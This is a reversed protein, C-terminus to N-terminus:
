RGPASSFVGRRRLGVVVLGVCLAGAAWTSAEPVAAVVLDISTGDDSFSFTFGSGNNVTWGTTVIGGAVGTIVNDYTGAQVGGLTFTQNAQFGNFGSPLALTSHTNGAGLTLGIVSGANLVPASALTLAGTAAGAGGQLVAGNNVTVVGGVTGTGGLITGSNSVAVASAGTSGSVLLAGASVTTAGTYTSTGGLTWTGANIKSLGGGGTAVGGTITGTGSGTLTLTFGSGGVASASTLNLVTGNNAAVTSNAALTIAGGYTNTGGNNELAGAGGTAGAGSLTLAEAGVTINNQLQLTAGSAVVTGAATTGLATANRVVTIGGNLSTLGTYVNANSLTLTGAGGKQLAIAASNIVGSVATNGAGQFDLTRVGSGGALLNGSFTLLNSSNNTFTNTTAASIGGVNYGGTGSFTVAGAGAGVSVGALRITGTNTFAVSGTQTGDVSILVGLTGSGGGVVGSAAQTLTLNNASNAFLATDSTTATSGPVGNPTWNTTTDLAGSTGPSWTFTTQAHLPGGLTWLAGGVLLLVALPRGSLPSSSRRAAPLHSPKM